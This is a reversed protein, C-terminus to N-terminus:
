RLKQMLCNLQRLLVVAEEQVVSLKRTYSNGTSNYQETLTVTYKKGNTVSWFWYNDSM